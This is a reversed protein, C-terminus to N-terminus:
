PDVRQSKLYEVIKATAPQSLILCESDLWVEKDGAAHLEAFTTRRVGLKDYALHPAVADFYAQTTPESLWKGTAEYMGNIKTSTPLHDKMYSVVDHQHFKVGILYDKLKQMVMNWHPVETIEGPLGEELYDLLQPKSESTVFGHILTEIMLNLNYTGVGWFDASPCVALTANAPPIVIYLEDEGGMTYATATSMDTTCIISSKRQPWDPNAADSFARYFDFTNRAPRSFQKPNLIQFKSGAAVVGRWLKLDTSKGAKLNDLVTPNHAALWKVAAAVDASQGRGEMLKQLTAYPSTVEFDGITTTSGQNIDNLM